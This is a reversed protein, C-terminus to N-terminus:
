ATQMPLSPPTTIATPAPPPAGPATSGLRISTIYTNIYAETWTAEDAVSEGLSTVFSNLAASVAKRGRDGDIRNIESTMLSLSLLVLVCVGVYVIVSPLAVFVTFTKLPDKSWRPKAREPRAM